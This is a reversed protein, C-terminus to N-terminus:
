LETSNPLLADTYSFFFRNRPTLYPFFVSEVLTFSRMSVANQQLAPTCSSPRISSPVQRPSDEPMTRRLARCIKLWRCVVVSWLVNVHFGFGFM